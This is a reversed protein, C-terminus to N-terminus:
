MKTKMSQAINALALPHCLIEPFDICEVKPKISQLLISTTNYQCPIIVSSNGEQGGYELGYM